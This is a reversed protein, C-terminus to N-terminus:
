KNSPITFWFRAGGTYDPDIDINGGLKRAITRCIDLGLGSGPKMNDLKKYRTFIEAHRDKSVGVGTDTVTFTLMDSGKDFSCGLTISGEATNKEANTLMNIIVQSVRQKDTIVTFTDDVATEFKMEVGKALRHRVTEMTQRCTENVAMTTMKLSMTGSNINALYLIDNVLTILLESNDKIYKAMTKKEEKGYDNGMFTLVNAFGVIANLPTRIEHSMNQLFMTKMRDSEQAKNKAKNLDEITHSLRENAAGLKKAVWKKRFNYALATLVVLIGFIIHTTQMINRMRIEHNKAEKKIQQAKIADELQRATLQRNNYALENKDALTKTLIMLTRQRGLELSTNRLEMQANGLKLSTNHNLIRQREAKLKQDSFISEESKKDYQMIDERDENRLKIIDRMHEVATMYDGKRKCYAIRLRNAENQSVKEVEGISANIRKEDGDHIAKCAELTKNMVRFTNDTQGRNQEALRYAEAFEKDKGLMFYGYALYIYSYGRETDTSCHHLAQKAYSVVMEDDGMMRYCDCVSLYERFINSTFGTAKYREITELFCDVAQMLDMRYQLVIGKMRLLEMEGETDKKKKANGIEENLYLLAEIYRNTKAYYAVKLTIPKYFEATMGYEMAKKMLPKMSRELGALNNPKFYEHRLKVSLAAIEGHRDGIATAARLLSDALPLCEASKRLNFAKTYLPYLKDNIKEDNNQAVATAAMGTIFLIATLLAHIARQRLLMGM